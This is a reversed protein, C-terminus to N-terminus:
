TCSVQCSQENFARIFLDGPLLLTTVKKIKMKDAIPVELISTLLPRLYRMFTNVIKLEFIWFVVNWNLKKFNWIIIYDIDIENKEENQFLGKM